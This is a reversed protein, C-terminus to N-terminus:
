KVFGLPLRLVGAFFGTAAEGVAVGRDLSANPDAPGDGVGVGREVAPDGDALGGRAEERAHEPKLGTGASVMKM